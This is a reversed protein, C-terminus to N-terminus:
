GTAALAANGAHRFVKLLNHCAALLRWEGRASDIGRLLYFGLYGVSFGVTLGGLVEITLLSLITGPTPATEGTAVGLLMVRLAPGIDYLAPTM